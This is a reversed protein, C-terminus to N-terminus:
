WNFTSEELSPNQINDNLKLILHKLM